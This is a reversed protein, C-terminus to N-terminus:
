EIMEFIEAIRDPERVVLVSCPVGRFTRDAEDYMEDRRSRIEAIDGICLLDIQQEKVLRKMEEHVNGRRPFTEVAVGKSQALNRVLELYRQSDREIDQLYEDAESELFIRARRLESLARTNVVFAASLEAGTRLSLAIAYEAASISEESGDVYVMIRSIPGDM